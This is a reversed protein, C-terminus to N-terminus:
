PYVLVFRLFICTTIAVTHFFRIYQSNFAIWLLKWRLIKDLLRKAIGHINYQNCIWSKKQLLFVFFWSGDCMLWKFM